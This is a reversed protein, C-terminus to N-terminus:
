DESIKLISRGLANLALDPIRRTIAPTVSRQLEQTIMQVIIKRPSHHSPVHSQSDCELFTQIKRHAKNLDRFYTARDIGIIEAKKQAAVQWDPDWVYQFTMVIRPREKLKCQLLARQVDLGDGTFVEPWRQNVQSSSAGEREEKIRGLLSQAYGDVNGHWDRGAWIRRKQSGWLRCARLIWYPLDSKSM